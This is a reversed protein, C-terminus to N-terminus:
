KKGFSKNIREVLAKGEGTQMFQTMIQNVTASDGSEVAKKLAEGDVAKRINKGEDSNVVNKLEGSRNKLIEKSLKDFDNM